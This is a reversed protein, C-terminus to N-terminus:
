QRPGVRGRYWDLTKRLGEELPVSARWGLIREAKSVDACSHRVEGRRAPAHLPSGSLGTMRAVAGALAAISIAKGSGINLPSAVGGGAECCALNARVVDSVYVFDRTQEGDGFIVPQEGNCARQIFRPIVAAYEAHPNQRPGYVNFYRLIFVRLGHLRALVRCYHEGALKAAAYPSRPDPGLEESVPQERPDGYVACTSSYVITHCCRRIACMLVNLTGGTNVDHTAIPRELSQAVSSQAALHFVHAAGDMAREVADPDRVDGEVFDIEGLMNRLNELNGSSLNDLVRVSWGRQLLGEVLHSGIFGAGGTVLCNEQARSTM